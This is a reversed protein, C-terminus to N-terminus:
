PSEIRKSPLAMHAEVRVRHRMERRRLIEAVILWGFLGYSMIVLDQMSRVGAFLVMIGLGWVVAKATGGPLDLVKNWMGALRGLFLGGLFVAFLGSMTYLEGVISHTLSAGKVGVMKSLDYGADIPKSPGSYALFLDSWLM